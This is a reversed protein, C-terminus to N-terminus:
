DKGTGFLVATLLAALQALPFILAVKYALVLAGGWTNTFQLKATWNLTDPISLLPVADALNWAFTELTRFALHPDSPHVGSVPLVHRHVLLAGVAAFAVTPLLFLLEGWWILDKASWDRVHEGWTERTKRIALLYLCAAALMGAIAIAAVVTIQLWLRGGKLVQDTADLLVLTVAPGILIVSLWWTWASTADLGTIALLGFLKRFFQGGLEGRALKYAADVPGHERAHRYFEALGLGLPDYWARAPRAQPPAPVQAEGDAHPDSADQADATDPGAETQADPEGM